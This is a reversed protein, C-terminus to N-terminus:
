PRARPQARVLMPSAFNNQPSSQTTSPRSFMGCSPACTEIHFCVEVQSVIACITTNGGWAQTSLRSIRQIGNTPQADQIIFHMAM